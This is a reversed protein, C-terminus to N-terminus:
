SGRVRRLWRHLRCTYDYAPSLRRRLCSITTFEDIPVRKLRLCDAPAHLNGREISCALGYGTEQVLDEIAPGFTGYPYAFCQVSEGLREELIKKSELLERRAADRSLTSLRLHNLSHSGFEIGQRNLEQIEEWGMLPAAPGESWRSVEGVAGAVVFVTAVFGHRALAPYAAQYFSRYGDDFTLVVTRPSVPQGDRLAALVDRLTLCRYGASKLYVIQETFRQPSIWLRRHGGAEVPPGVHHYLLIPLLLM